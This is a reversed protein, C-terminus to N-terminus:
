YGYPWLFSNDHKMIGDHKQHNRQNRSHEAKAPDGGASGADRFNQEDHEEYSRDHREQHVSPRPNLLGCSTKGHESPPPDGGDDTL